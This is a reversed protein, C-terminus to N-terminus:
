FLISQDIRESIFHYNIKTEKIKESNESFKDLKKDYIEMRSENKNKYKMMLKEMLETQEQLVKLLKEQQKINEMKRLRKELPQEKFNLSNQKPFPSILKPLYSFNEISSNNQYLPPLEYTKNYNSYSNIM